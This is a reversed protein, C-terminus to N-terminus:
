KQFGVRILKKALRKNRGKIALMKKEIFLQVNASGFIETAIACQIIVDAIEQCVQEPVADNRKYHNIADALEILEEVTKSLQWELSNVNVSDIITSRDLRLKFLGLELKKEEPM